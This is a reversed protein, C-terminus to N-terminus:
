VPEFQRMEPSLLLSEFDLVALLREDTTSSAAQEYVGRLYPAIRDEIQAAPLRIHQTELYRIGAVQDVVLGAALAGKGAQAVLMRASALGPAPDLGLFSRLDVISLIDGRLNTVGLVWEPVNPVPTIQPVRDTQTINDISAAYATGALSFVVFQQRRDAADPLEDVQATKGLAGSSTVASAALTEQDIAAILDNLLDSGPEAAPQHVTELVTEGAVVPEGDPEPQAESGTIDLVAPMDDVLWDPLESSQELGEFPDKGFTKPNKKEVM